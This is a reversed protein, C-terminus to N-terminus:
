NRPPITCHVWAREILLHMSKERLANTNSKTLIQQTYKIQKGREGNQTRLAHTYIPSRRSFIARLVFKWMSNLQVYIFQSPFAAPKTMPLDYVCMCACVCVYMCLRLATVCICQDCM